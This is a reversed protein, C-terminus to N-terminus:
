GPWTDNGRTPARYMTGKQSRTDAELLVKVGTSPALPNQSIVSRINAM